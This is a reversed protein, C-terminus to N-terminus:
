LRINFGLIVFALTKSSADADIFQPLFALFFLAVKPNLINTIFGQRFVVVLSFPFQGTTVKARNGPTSGRGATLQEPSAWGFSRLWAECCCSRLWAECRCGLTDVDALVREVDSAEIPPAITTRCFHVRPWTSARSAFMGGQRIPM